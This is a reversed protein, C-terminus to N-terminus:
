KYDKKQWINKVYNNIITKAINKEQNHMHQQSTYSSFGSIWSQRKFPLIQVIPTGSEIIGEFNEQIWFVPNIDQPYIDTDVVASISRIPLYDHGSPHMILCSWGPPTKIVWPNHYKYATTSFGYPTAVGYSQRPDHVGIPPEQTKWSVSHGEGTKVVMIDTWLPIIYGSTIADFMPMCKKGTASSNHGHIKIKGDVYTDMKRWWEPVNKSSPSPLDTVVDKYYEGISIFEITKKDKFM